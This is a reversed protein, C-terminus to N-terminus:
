QARTASHAPKSVACIRQRPALQIDPERLFRTAESRLPLKAKERFDRARPLSLVHPPRDDSRQPLSFRDPGREIFLIAVNELPRNILRVNFKSEIVQAARMLGRM